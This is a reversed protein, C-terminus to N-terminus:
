RRSGSCSTCGSVCGTSCGAFCSGTCSFCSMACSSACDLIKDVLNTDIIQGHVEPSQTTFDPETQVPGGGNIAANIVREDDIKNAAKFAWEVNIVDERSDTYNTHM